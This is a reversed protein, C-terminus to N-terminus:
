PSDEKPVHPPTSLVEELVRALGIWGTFARTRGTEDVVRGSLREADRSLELSLRHPATSTM